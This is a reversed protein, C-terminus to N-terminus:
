HRTAVLLPLLLLLLMVLVHHLSLYAFPLLIPFSYLPLSLPSSSSCRYVVKWESEQLNKGLRVEELNRNVNFKFVKKCPTDSTVHAKPLM